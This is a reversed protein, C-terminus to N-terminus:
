PLFTAGDGSADAAGDPAADSIGADMSVASSSVPPTTYTSVTVAGDFDRACYFDGRVDRTCHLGSECAPVCEGRECLGSEQNCLYGPSCRAWCEHTVARYVGVAAVQLGTLAAAQAYENKNQKDCGIFAVLLLVASAASFAARM